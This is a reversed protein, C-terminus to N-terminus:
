ERSLDQRNFIGISLVLFLATWCVLSLAAMIITGAEIPPDMLIPVAWQRFVDGAHAPIVLAMQMSPPPQFYALLLATSMSFLFAPAVGGLLSRTGISACFTIAGLACLELWSGAFAGLIHALDDQHPWGMSGSAFMSLVAVCRDGLVSLLLSCGAFFVFILFKSVILLPRQNRPAILRWTEWRYDDCALSAAGIALFFHGIPNGAVGLTRSILRVHDSTAIHGSRLLEALDIGSGLFFFFLPIIGYAIVMIRKNRLGRYFEGRIASWLM